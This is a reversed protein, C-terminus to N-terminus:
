WRVSIARPGALTRRRYGTRKPGRLVAHDDRHKRPADIGHARPAHRPKGLAGWLQPASRTASAYKVKGTKPDTNVKVGAVEGIKSIIGGRPARNAAPGQRSQAKPNFVPGTRAAEPAAALFEAFEPAIPLMQDKHGKELEAPIRLMARKGTLDICLKGDRDWHLELSEALRLGSLWLGRLYHCRCKRGRARESSPRM